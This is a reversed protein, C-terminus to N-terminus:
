YEVGSQVKLFHRYIEAKRLIHLLGRGPHSTPVSSNLFHRDVDNFEPFLSPFASFLRLVPRNERLFPKESM